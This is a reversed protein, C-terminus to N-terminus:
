SLELYMRNRFIGINIFLNRFPEKYLVLRSFRHGTVYKEISEIHGNDLEAVYVQADEPLERVEDATMETYRKGEFYLTKETDPYIRTM